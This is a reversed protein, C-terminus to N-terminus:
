ILAKQYTLISSLGVYEIQRRLLGAMSRLMTAMDPHQGWRRDKMRLGKEQLLLVEEYKRQSRLNTIGGLYIAM